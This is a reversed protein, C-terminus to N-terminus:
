KENKSLKKLFEMQSQRAKEWNDQSMVEQQHPRPASMGQHSRQPYSPPSAPMGSTLDGTYADSVMSYIFHFANQLRERSAEGESGEMMLMSNPPLFHKALDNSLEILKLQVEENTM